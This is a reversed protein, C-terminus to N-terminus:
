VPAYAKETTVSAVTEPPPPPVDAVVVVVVVVVKDAVVVVIDPLQADADPLCEPVIGFEPEPKLERGVAELPLPLGDKLLVIGIGVPVDGVLDEKRGEPEMTGEPLTELELLLEVFVLPVPVPRDVLDKDPM